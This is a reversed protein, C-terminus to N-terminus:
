KNLENFVTQRLAGAENDGSYEWYMGGLLGQEKIFRCKIAISEQNEYTCIFEGEDNILYPVKAIDDWKVQFTTQIELDKFDTPGVVKRDSKGYFPMGLVLKNAPVGGQLHLNVSEEATIHSAFESRFLPSHHYPPMSMDYAM